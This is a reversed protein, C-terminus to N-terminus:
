RAGITTTVGNSTVVGLANADPGVALARDYPMAGALTPEAPIGVAVVRNAALAATTTRLEVSTGLRCGRAGFAALDLRLAWSRFSTRVLSFLGVTAATSPVPVLRLELDSGLWPLDARTAM